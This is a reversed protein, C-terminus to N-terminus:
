KIKLFYRIFPMVVGPVAFFAFFVVIMPALDFTFDVKFDGSPINNVEIIGNGLLYIVFVIGIMNATSKLLPEFITSELVRSAVILGLITIMIGLYQPKLLDLEPSEYGLSNYIYKFIVPVIYIYLIVTLAGEITGKVIEKAAKKLRKDM